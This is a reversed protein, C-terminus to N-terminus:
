SLVQKQLPRTTGNWSRGNWIDRITKSSVHYKRSLLISPATMRDDSGPSPKREFIEIVQEKSLITRPRCKTHKNSPLTCQEISDEPGTRLLSSALDAVIVSSSECHEDVLEKATISKPQMAEVVQFKIQSLKLTVFLEQQLDTDSDKPFIVFM